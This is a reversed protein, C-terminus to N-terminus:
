FACKTDLVWSNSHSTSLYNEIMFMGSNSVKILKKGEVTALYEKCNRRWHGDNGCHQCIGKDKKIGETPKKAKSIYGKNKKNKKNSM